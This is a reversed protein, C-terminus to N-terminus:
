GASEPPTSILREARAVNAEIRALYENRGDPYPDALFRYLGGLETEIRPRAVDRWFGPTRRLLEQEDEYKAEPPALEPSAQAAEIFEAQLVPLKDVYDEAAMQGVLDATGLACGVIRESESAFPIEAPRTRLSTCQIMRQVAAIEEAAFDKGALFDAAFQGSRAVHTFTYKAGTGSDDGVRKLYGTDHLLAAIIGLEFPRRGVVPRIGARARERLIRALCLTGQLTHEFEHYGIDIAQFGPHRGAFCDAAWSFVRSVFLRDGDPFLELHTAQLAAAM